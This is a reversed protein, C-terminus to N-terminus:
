QTSEEYESRPTSDIPIYSCFDMWFRAMQDRVFPNNWEPSAFFLTSKVFSDNLSELDGPRMGASSLDKGFTQLQNYIAESEALTKSAKAPLPPLVTLPPPLSGDANPTRQLNQLELQRRRSKEFLPMDGEIHSLGAHFANALIRDFEDYDVRALAYLASSSVPPAMLHNMPVGDGTGPVYVDPVGNGDKLHKENKNDADGGNAIYQQMARGLMAEAISAPVGFFLSAFQANTQQASQTPNSKRSAAASIIIDVDPLPASGGAQRLQKVHGAITSKWCKLLTRQVRSHHKKGVSKGASTTYGSEMIQEFMGLVLRWHGVVEPTIIEPGVTEFILDVLSNTVLMFHQSTTGYAVHRSGLRIIVPVLSKPTGLLNIAGEIMKVLRGAQLVIDVGYFIAETMSRHKTLLDNYFAVAFDSRKMALAWTERITKIIEPTIAQLNASTMLALIREQEDNTIAAGDSGAVANPGGGGIKPASDGGAPPGNNAARKAATTTVPVSSSSPGSREGAADTRELSEDKAQGSKQQQQGTTPATDKANKEVKATDAEAEKRTEIALSDLAQGITNKEGGSPALVEGTRQQSCAGGM